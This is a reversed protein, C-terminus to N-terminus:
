KPCRGRWEPRCEAAGGLKCNWRSAGSFSEKQGHACYECQGDLWLLAAIDRKAAAVEGTLDELLSAAERLAQADQRFICDPDDKDVSSDRDRAQDELNRIIEDLTM